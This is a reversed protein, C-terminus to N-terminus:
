LLPWRFGLDRVLKRSERAVSKATAIHPEDEEVGLIPVAENQGQGLLVAAQRGAELGTVYAKEQSLGRAGHSGPGQALWDGAMFLNPISTSTSPMHQHSGPGFLTVAGKFRLVSSDLVKAGGFGPECGALYRNLVRDVIVDDPLPLLQNAHYFDVEIVSGAENRYEDQLANLDFFTGGTTADFGSFVNSPNPPTVRRDLWLRAALVDIGGLNSFGAFDPRDALPPSTAVIRQMANVGVAFVVADASFTTAQGNSDIATIATARGSVDDVTVRQVRQGGLIRAGMIELKRRWPAFLSEVVPGKCWRVDFDAQHALVYYYLAGLAAAASLQEGPAFLTVLLIPELFERYLRASVGASRFLERATMADYRAYAEEDVDFEVLAQVLPIATLRDAIPLSRFYPSTYLFSGLPTPLRPLDQFVPAEVQIGAPSYFSSRTWETFPPLISLEEVLRYINHYQYWFGKMGAEVARGQSTRFGGSLGGPDPSADLLTVAFGCRALQYAAGFGAWGGGVVVAKKKETWAVHEM